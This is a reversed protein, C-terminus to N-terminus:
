IFIPPIDGKSIFKITANELIRYLALISNDGSFDKGGTWVNRTVRVRCFEALADISRINEDNALPEAYVAMDQNPTANKDIYVLGKVPYSFRIGSYPISNAVLSVLMRLAMDTNWGLSVSLNLARSIDMPTMCHIVCDGIIKISKYWQCQSSDRTFLYTNGLRGTFSSDDLFPNFLGPTEIFLHVWMIEKSNDYTEAYFKHKYKFLRNVRSSLFGRCIEIYRDMAWFQFENYISSWNNRLYAALSDDIGLGSVVINSITILNGSYDIKNISSVYKKIITMAPSEIFLINFRTNINITPSLDRVPELFDAGYWFRKDLLALIKWIEESPLDQYKPTDDVITRYRFDVKKEKINYIVSM